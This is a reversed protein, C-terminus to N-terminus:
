GSTISLLGLIGVAYVVVVTLSDVGMGLIRRSPRFILGVIYILTLLVALATLYIDSSNAHSLVSAGSIITAVLFLVPLFANGGFIDSMALNDDGQKV